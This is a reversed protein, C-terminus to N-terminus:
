IENTPNGSPRDLLVEDRGGSPGVGEHCGLLVWDLRANAGGDARAAIQRPVTLLRIPISNKGADRWERPPRAPASTEVV